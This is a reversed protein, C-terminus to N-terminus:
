FSAGFLEEEFLAGCDSPAAWDLLLVGFGFCSAPLSERLEAARAFRAAFASGFAVM